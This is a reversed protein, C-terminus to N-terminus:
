GSAGVRLRFEPTEIELARQYAPPYAPLVYIRRAHRYPRHDHRAHWARKAHRYGPHHHAFRKRAHARAHAPARHDARHLGRHASRPKGVSHGRVTAPPGARHHHVAASREAHGPGRRDRAEAEGASLAGAALSAALALTVSLRNM